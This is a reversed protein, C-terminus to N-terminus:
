SPNQLGAFWLPLTQYMRPTLTQGRESTDTELLSQTTTVEVSQKVDGVELRLDVTSRNAIFIEIDTRVLKKFGPKEVSVTYIGPPLNPFVYLGADNSITHLTVGSAVLTADVAAGPIGTNQADVVSGSLSGTQSQGLAISCILLGLAILHVFRVVRNKHM